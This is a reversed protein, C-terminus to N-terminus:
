AVFRNFSVEGMSPLLIHTLYGSAARRRPCLRPVTRDARARTSVWPLSRSQVRLLRDAWKCPFLERLRRRGCGSEAVPGPLQQLTVYMVHFHMIPSDQDVSTFSLRKVRSRCLQCPRWPRRVAESGTRGRGRWRACRGGRPRRSPRATSGRAAVSRPPVTTVETAQCRQELLGQRCSRRLRGGHTQPQPARAAGRRLVAAVAPARHGPRREPDELLKRPGTGEPGESLVPLPRHLGGAPRRHAPGEVAAGPAAPAAAPRRCLFPADPSSHAV